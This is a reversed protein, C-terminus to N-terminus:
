HSNYITTLLFMMDEYFQGRSQMYGVSDIGKVIIQDIIEATFRNILIVWQNIISRKIRFQVEISKLMEISRIIDHLRSKQPQKGCIQYMLILTKVSRKLETALDLGAIILNARSKLFETNFMTDRDPIKVDMMQDSNMKVIWQVLRIYFLDLQKSFQGDKDKLEDKLFTDLDRPDCKTPKKLPCKKYLFHGPNLCLNNYLIIVPCFKQLAWIKKYVKSDEEGFLKRFLSYNILLTM